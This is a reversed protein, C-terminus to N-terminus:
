RKTCKIILCITSLLRFNILMSMNVLHCVSLVLHEMILTIFSYKQTKTVKLFKVELQKLMVKFFLMFTQLLSQKAKTTLTVDKMSMLVV